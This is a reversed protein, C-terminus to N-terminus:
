AILKRSTRFLEWVFPGPADAQTELWRWQTMLVELQAWNNRADPSAMAVLKAGCALVAAIEATHRTINADRTIILWGAAAVVPLWETDPQRPRIVCPPRQRKNIVVGPDGPYTIDTRLGAVVKALGLIDADFYYRVVAPKV